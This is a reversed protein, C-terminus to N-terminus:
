SHWKVEVLCGAGPGNTQRVIITYLGNPVIRGSDDEGTWSIERASGEWREVVRIRVGDNNFVDLGRARTGFDLLITVRDGPFTADGSPDLRCLCGAPAAPGLGYGIGSRSIDRVAPWFAKSKGVVCARRGFLSLTSKWLSKSWHFTSAGIDLLRRLFATGASWGRAVFGQAGRWLGALWTFFSFVGNHAVTALPGATSISNGTSAIAVGAPPIDARRILRSFDTRFEGRWLTEPDIYKAAFIAGIHVHSSACSPDGAAAVYGITQGQGVQDGASVAVKDLPLYTTKVGNVHKVSVCNGLPTHGAFSVRGAAAATIRTQAGASIDVGRHTRKKGSTTDTYTQGFRLVTTGNLPRVFTVEGALVNKGIVVWGMGFVLLLLSGALRARIIRSM